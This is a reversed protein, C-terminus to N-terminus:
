LDACEDCLHLWGGIHVDKMDVGCLICFSLGIPAAAYEIEFLADDMNWVAGAARWRTWFRPDQKKSKNMIIELTDARKVYRYGAVLRRHM